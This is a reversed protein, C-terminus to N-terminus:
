NELYYVVGQIAVKVQDGVSVKSRDTAQIYTEVMM